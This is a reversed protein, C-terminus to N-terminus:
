CIGELKKLYNNAERIVSNNNFWMIKAYTRRTPKRPAAEHAEGNVVYMGFAHCALKKSACAQAHYCGDCPLPENLIDEFNTTIM